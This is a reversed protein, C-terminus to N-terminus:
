ANENDEDDENLAIYHDIEARHTEYYALAEDIDARTLHPYVTELMSPNDHYIRAYQVITRVPTRTGAIVPEGGVVDPTRSIRTFTKPHTVM